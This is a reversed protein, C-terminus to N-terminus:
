LAQFCQEVSWVPAALYAMPQRLPTDMFRRCDDLNGVYVRPHARLLEHMLEWQSDTLQYLDMM